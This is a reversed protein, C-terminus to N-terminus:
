WKNATHATLQLCSNLIEYMNTTRLALSPLLFPQMNYAAVDMLAATHFTKMSNIFWMFLIEPM